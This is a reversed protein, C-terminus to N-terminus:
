ECDSMPSRGQGNLSVVPRGDINFFELEIEDDDLDIDADEYPDTYEPDPIEEPGFPSFSGHLSPLTPQFGGNMEFGPRIM